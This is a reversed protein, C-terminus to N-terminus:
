NYKITRYLIKFLMKNTSDSLPYCRHLRSTDLKRSKNIKNDTLNQMYGHKELEVVQEETHLGYPYTFIKLPQKGLKEEIIRYSEDVNKVAEETALSTFEPHNTSHSAITVLGSDQMEKAENWNICGDQEMKDTIVFMTFPINYKKAIPYANEYVGKLGDDFTLICSNKKLKIEHNKFKKLDEYTIFNYGYDKLGKIQNEFTEKTTQMYDYEVQSADNVINHYVFIPININSDSIYYENNVTTRDYIIISLLTLMIISFFIIIIKKINKKKDINKEM